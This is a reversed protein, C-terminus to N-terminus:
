IAPYRLRGIFRTLSPRREARAQWQAKAKEFRMIGDIRRALFERTEAVNESEDDLFVLLTATYIGGLIARKSYHNFDTTSDGALRWMQDAARWGMRAAKIMNQPMALIAQARRLAERNPTLRELRAEVLTTIKERVKQSSLREPSVDQAMAKDLWQFWADIMDTTGGPFALAVMAPDLNAEYAASTLAKHNWGDFAAHGPLRPALYDRVEDLTPVEPLPM